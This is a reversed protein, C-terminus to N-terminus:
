NDYDAGLNALSEESWQEATWRITLEGLPEIQDFSIAAGRYLELVALFRAIVVGKQDAGAILQRFTMPEGRRLLAVVHAAQERISVLPAHLHDLGVTPLERPAFALAALAAFDDPTLTWVLEPTQQRFREELRVSRVHRTSEADLHASFWVTAEKFARYQLLRAFLLDRAELLAVDEADVLEGQPLLGAVKLDLLTAAVVLFETAQDLEEASDLGRLYSIFEDTVRSLSIETIDLEHKGILSLLLDFPGSFNSLSVSFGSAETDLEAVTVAASPRQAM